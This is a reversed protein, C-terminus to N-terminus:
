LVASVAKKIVNKKEISTELENRRKSDRCYYHRRSTTAMEM